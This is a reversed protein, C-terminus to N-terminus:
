RAGDVFRELGDLCGDWGAAHGRRTEENPIREHTVIVETSGAGASEFHVTVREIAAGPAPADGVQWTYVLRQPPDVVEFRGRIWVLRGDAFRNAIRYEGGPRLDVHAEPCTVGPPGWWQVIERPDTWLAFVRERAARIARRVVLPADANPM